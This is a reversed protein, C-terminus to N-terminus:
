IEMVKKVYKAPTALIAALDFYDKFNFSKFGLLVTLFGCGSSPHLRRIMMSLKTAPRKSDTPFV